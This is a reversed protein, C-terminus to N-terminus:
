THYYVPDSDSLEDCRDCVFHDGESDNTDCPCGCAICYGESDDVIVEAVDQCDFLLTSGDAIATCGCGWQLTNDPGQM